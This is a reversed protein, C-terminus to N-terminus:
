NSRAGDDRVRALLAAGTAVTVAVLAPPVRRRAYPYARDSFELVPWGRESAIRRLARDPNM